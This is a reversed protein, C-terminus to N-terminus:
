KKNKKELQFEKCALSVCFPEVTDLKKLIKHCEKLEKKMSKFNKIIEEDMKNGGEDSKKHSNAIDDSNIM